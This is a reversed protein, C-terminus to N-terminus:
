RAQGEMLDLVFDIVYSVGGVKTLMVEPHVPTLRRKLGESTLSSLNSNALETSPAVKLTVTYESLPHKVESVRM